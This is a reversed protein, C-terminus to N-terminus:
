RSKPALSQDFWAQAWDACTVNAGENDVWGHVYPQGVFYGPDATLPIIYVERALLREVELFLAKRKEVDFEQGQADILRDLEPDNIPMSNLFGGSRFRTQWVGNGPSSTVGQDIDAQYNGSTLNKQYVTTELPQVNVTIDLARLQAAVVTAQSPTTPHAQDVSITFSLGGKGFGAASLLQKADQIDQAKPNRWGPLKEIEAQPLAWGQAVANIGPPNMLGDGADLTKLMERRDIATQVAQRVRKDNFPPKDLKMYLEDVIDRVFTWLRAGKVLPMLTDLQRRSSVHLVDNQRATFAALRGAEDTPALVKWGDLYPKGTRWYDKNATYTAGKLQDYTAVKFAGTGIAVKEFQDGRDHVHKPLIVPKPDGNLGNLFAIQPQKTKVQLTHDDPMTMSDVSRFHDGAAISNAPDSMFQISWQVDAATFPTGDHWRVNPRIHFVYTSSDPQEWNQALTGVLKYTGRYDTFPKYDYAVLTEYVGRMYFDINASFVKWPNLHELARFGVTQFTGGPQPTLASEDISGSAVPTASGTRKPAARCGALLVGGAVASGALFTRRRVLQGGGPM